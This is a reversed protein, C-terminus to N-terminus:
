AVVESKNEIAIFSPENLVIGEGVLYILTNATGLDIAMDVKLVVGFLSEFWERIRDLLGM